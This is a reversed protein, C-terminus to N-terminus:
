ERRGKRKRISVRKTREEVMEELQDNMTQLEEQMVILDKNKMMAAEYTSILLTLMQQQDATIFRRKGAVLIEAGISAREVQYLNAIQM